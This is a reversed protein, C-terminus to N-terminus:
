APSATMARTRHVGAKWLALAAGALVAIMGYAHPAFSSFYLIPVVAFHAAFYAAAAASVAVAPSALAQGCHILWHTTFVNFCFYAFQLAIYGAVACAAGGGFGSVALAAVALLGLLECARRFGIGRGALSGARWWATASLALLAVSTCVGVAGTSTLTIGQRILLPQAIRWALDM